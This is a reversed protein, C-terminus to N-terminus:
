RPNPRLWAAPPESVFATGNKGQEFGVNFLVKMYETDFAGRSPENFNTPITALSFPVGSQKAALYAQHIMVRTLTKVIVSVGRIMISLLSRETVQFDSTLQTNIILYLGDTPLKYNSSFALLAEPAAYFQACMGGDAHMETFRKGEAEADILVPPFAGPISGAALLVERFLKLAKEGGATAIVGMNWVVPRESDVNTTIVFLRRGKAHEAAVDALLEPTVQKAILDRLPWTDFFSEGGKPGLEFIDGAFITTYAARLQPDYKPGVFAFPAMLAGTSVGTVLSFEPRKGSETLGILVGAGYAGDAGGSSLALWPGRMTPLASQFDKASDGWFRASPIGPITAADAQSATYAARPPIEPGKPEPKPAEPQPRRVRRKKGPAAYSRAGSASANENRSPGNANKALTSTSRSLIEEVVAGPNKLEQAFATAGTWPRATGSM